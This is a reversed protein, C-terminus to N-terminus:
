ILPIALACIVFQMSKPINVFYACVSYNHLMFFLNHKDRLNQISKWCRLETVFLSVDRTSSISSWGPLDFNKEM